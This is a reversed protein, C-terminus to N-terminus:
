GLPCLGTTTRRKIPSSLPKEQDEEEILIQNYGSYADFFSLLEHGATADILQNIHPLPFSDKPFEKNLNTFDVCMRWKGNKKKVMVVNAVWQPYKSDRISGNALLKDVEESVVENITANFKRRMQQVPPYLPDVNLRHTAIDRPIGPMDSHSFVFLDANNTLFEHYKGPESLNHGVYAKKTSDTNDM